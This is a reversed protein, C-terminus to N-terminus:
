TRCHCVKCSNVTITPFHRPSIIHFTQTKIIIIALTIPVDCTSTNELYLVM